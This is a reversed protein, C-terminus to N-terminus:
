SLYYHIVYNFHDVNYKMEYDLKMMLVLIPISSLVVLETEFSKLSEFSKAYLTCSYGCPSRSSGGYRHGLLPQRM